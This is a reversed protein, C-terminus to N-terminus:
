NLSMQQHHGPSFSALKQPTQLEKAVLPKDWISLLPNLLHANTSNQM